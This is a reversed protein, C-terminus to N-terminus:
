VSSIATGTVTVWAELPKSASLMVAQIVSLQNETHVMWFPKSNQSM